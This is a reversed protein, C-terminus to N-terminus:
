NTSIVSEIRNLVVKDKAVNSLPGFNQILLKNVTGKTLYVNDKGVFKITIGDVKRAASRENTFAYLGTICTLLVIIKVINWKTQM